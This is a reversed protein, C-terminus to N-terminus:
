GELLHGGTDMYLQLCCKLSFDVRKARPRLRLSLAENLDVVNALEPTGTAFVDFPSLCGSVIYQVSPPCLGGSSCWFKGELARHKPLLWLSVAAWNVFFKHITCSADFLFVYLFVFESEIQQGGSIQLSINLNQTVPESTVLPWSWSNQISTGFSFNWSIRPSQDQWIEKEHENHMRGGPSISASCHLLGSNICQFSSEHFEIFVCM